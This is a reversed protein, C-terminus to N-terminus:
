PSFGTLSPRAEIRVTIPVHPKPAEGIVHQAKEMAASLGQICGLLRHREMQRFGSQLIGVNFLRNSRGSNGRVVGSAALDQASMGTVVLSSLGTTPVCSSGSGACISGIQKVYM